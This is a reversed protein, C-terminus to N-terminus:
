KWVFPIGRRQTAGTNRDLVRFASPTSYVDTVGTFSSRACESWVLVTGPVTSCRHEPETGLPTMLATCMLSELSRRAQAVVEM